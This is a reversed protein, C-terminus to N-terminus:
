QFLRRVLRSKVLDAAVMGIFAGLIVDSPWHAGVCVRSVGILGALTWTAWKVRPALMGIMVLGAFSATAHGSPMSNYVWNNTFPFFGVINLGEFLVPRARGLIYKLVGTVVCASFISCFTFFAYSSKTKQLFDNFIARIKFQKINNWLNNNSKVTKKVYFMIVLIATVILWVKAQFIKGFKQFLWCDGGRMAMFLPQDFFFVGGLCLVLTVLGAFALLRWKIQNDKTLFM